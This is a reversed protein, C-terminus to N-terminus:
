EELSGSPCPYECSKSADAYGRGCFYHKSASSSQLERESYQKNLISSDDEIDGASDEEGNSRRRENTNIHAEEEKGM